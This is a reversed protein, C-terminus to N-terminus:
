QWRRSLSNEIGLLDLCRAVSHQVIDEISQPKNYFAPMPPMIIAGNLTAKQMLEIHGLHLPAERFMLVLKRREKLIVDAARTILNDNYSNAIGSLTKVSCPAIIMGKTLFSGSSISSHLANNPYFEDSMAILQEQSLNLEHQATFFGMKSVVLITRINLKKLAELLKVAYIIGSAGSIGVIISNNM